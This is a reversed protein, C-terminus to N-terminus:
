RKRIRWACAHSANEELQKRDIIPQVIRMPCGEKLGVGRGLIGEKGESSSNGVAWTGNELTSGKLIDSFEMDKLM